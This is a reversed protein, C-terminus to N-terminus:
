AMGAIKLAALHDEFVQPMAEPELRGFGCYAALGFAPLHRRAVALRAAFTDMSHIMGLYINTKGARLRSLPAYFADDVTDLTPIHMWDMRRGAAAIAMNALDVAGGLDAPAFRPWGGFTGFCLHVGLQVQEPVAASLVAFQRRNRELATAVPLQTGGYVDTIEWSCDWQIALDDHPIHACINAVEAAMAEAYGSRVAELDDMAFQIPPCASNASPISVQFRVGVPIRGRDRLARFIAYSNIADKAYGFRWGPQDFRLKTVGPRLKFQWSDALGSPIVREVGDVPKPRKITELDPHGNFVQYSLRLIWYRRDMVEGDPLSSLYAGLKPGATDLVEEATEFPVSGVLLLKATM